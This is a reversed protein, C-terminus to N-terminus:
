QHDERYRLAAGIATACLPTQSTAGEADLQIRHFSDLLHYLFDPSSKRLADVFDAEVSLDGCLHVIQGAAESIGVQAFGKHLEDTLGQALSQFAELRGLASLASISVWRMAKVTGSQGWTVIVGARDVKVVCVVQGKNGTIGQEMLNLLSFADVEVVGPVLDRRQFGKRLSDLWVKRIAGVVAVKPLKRGADTVHYDLYYDTRPANVATSFEWEVYERIDKIEPPLQVQRVVCLRAPLALTIASSNLGETFESWELITKEFFDIERLPHSSFEVVGLRRVRNLKHDFLALKLSTDGIEIGLTTNPKAM